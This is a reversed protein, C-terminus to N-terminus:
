EAMGSRQAGHSAGSGSVLVAVSLKRTEHYSGATATERELGGVTGTGSLERDAQWVSVSGSEGLDARLGAGDATGGRSPDAIATGRPQKGNGTRHSADARCDDSDAPGAVGAPGAPPPEGVPSVPVSGTAEKGNGAVVEEQVAPRRQPGGSAASEHDTHAGAGDPAPAVATAAPGPEGREAGLDASLSEGGAIASDAGCGASGDEAQTSAEHPDESRGRDM